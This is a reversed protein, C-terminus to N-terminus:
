ITQIGFLDMRANSMLSVNKTKAIHVKPVFTIQLFVDIEKGNLGMQANKSLHYVTGVWNIIDM